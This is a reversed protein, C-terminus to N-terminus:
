HVVALLLDSAKSVGLKQYTRQRYTLVTGHSIGLDSAILRATWGAMTRSTVECERATLAPYASALRREFESALAVADRSRTTRALGTLAIQALADLTPVGEPIAKRSYFSLVLSQSAGRWGYCLKESFHPREFCIRRYDALVIEEIPVRRVFGTGPATQLRAVNAPDSHHFRKAYLSARNSVNELGSSSALAKPGGSAAIQYAFVEDIGALSHALALLRASFAASGAADILDAALDPDILGPGTM